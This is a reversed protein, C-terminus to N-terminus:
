CQFYECSTYVSVDDNKRSVQWGPLCMIQNNVCIYNFQEYLVDAQCPIPVILSPLGFKSPPFASTEEFQWPFLIPVWFISPLLDFSIMMHIKVKKGRNEKLTKNSYCARWFLSKLLARSIQFGLEILVQSFISEATQFPALFARLNWRKIVFAVSRAKVGVMKAFMEFHLHM